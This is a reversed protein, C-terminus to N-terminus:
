ETLRSKEISIKLRLDSYDELLVSKILTSFLKAINQWGSAEPLAEMILPLSFNMKPVISDTPKSPMGQPM